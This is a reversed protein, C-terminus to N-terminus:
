SAVSSRSAALEDIIARRAETMPGLRQRV